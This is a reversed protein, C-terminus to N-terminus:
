YTEAQNLPLANQDKPSLLPEMDLPWEIGITPDNWLLHREDKPSWYDTTKYAVVAHSSLVLFGHAFGEPIWIQNQETSSLHIGVWQGFTPEARRLDVAVDFIEGELVRVLKGQPNNIQYHLGRLVGRASRSQNDQVFHTDVGRLDNFTRANFSEFFYGRDDSFVNPQLVIVNPIDLPTAKM